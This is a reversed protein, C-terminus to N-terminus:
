VVRRSVTSNQVSVIVCGTTNTSTALVRVNSHGKPFKFYYM